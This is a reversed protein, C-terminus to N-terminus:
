ELIQNHCALSVRGQLVKRQLKKKYMEAKLRNTTYSSKRKAVAKSYIIEPLKYYKERTERIMERHNFLRPIKPMKPPAPLLHRANKPLKCVEEYWEKYKQSQILRAERIQNLVEVRLKSRTLFDPKKLKLAESLSIEPSKAYNEKSPISYTLPPKKLEKPKNNSRNQPAAKRQKPVTEGSIRPTPFTQGFDANIQQYTNTKADKKQNNGSCFEKVQSVSPKKVLPKNKNDSGSASQGEVGRFNRIKKPEQFTSSQTSISSDDSMVMIKKLIEAETLIKSERGNSEAKKLRIKELKELKRIEKRLKKMQGIRMRQISLDNSDALYSSEEPNQTDDATASKTDIEDIKQTTPEEATTDEDLFDPSLELICSVPRKETLKVEEQRMLELIKDAM